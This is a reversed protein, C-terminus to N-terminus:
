VSVPRIRRQRIATGLDILLPHRLLWMSTVYSAIGLVICAFVWALPVEPSWRYVLMLLVSPAIAALTLTASRVYVPLFDGHHSGTLRKIHPAYLAVALVSEAIRTAVAVDLSFMCGVIFVSTGFLARVIELRVQRSTEGAIIFLEWAMSVAVWLIGTVCLLSLPLSIMQWKAGYLLRVCPGSLVALGAFMPWLLATMYELVKRYRPRLPDGSRAIHAFDVLLVRAVVVQIQESLLNFLSNARGYLGVATLGIMRGLLLNLLQRQVQTTGNILIMTLGFHTIQRWDQLGLRWQIFRPALACAGFANVTCTLVWGYALSMYSCGAFALAVTLWTGAATSAIRLISLSRFNGERQLLSSPVLGVAGIVPTTALWIMVRSTGVDGFMRDSGLGIGIIVAALGISIILNVTFLTAVMPPEVRDARILYNNLGLAQVVSILGVIAAGLTFVGMERPSLLHALVVSSFFQLIFFGGQGVSAWILSNSVAGPGSAAPGQRGAAEGIAM